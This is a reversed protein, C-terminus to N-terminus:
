RCFRATWRVHRNAPVSRLSRSSLMYKKVTRLNTIMLHLHLSVGEVAHIRELAAELIEEASYDGRKVGRVLEHVSRDSLNQKM